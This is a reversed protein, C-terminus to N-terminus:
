EVKQTSISAKLKQKIRSLRTGINSISLGTIEAIEEYSLGELFLLVIGKELKNLRKIHAYMTRLREEFLLDSNDPERNVLLELSHDELRKKKKRGQTIATNMAVRYIWTSRKSTGQFSDFSKWLQYVIEQYLDQQDDSHETYISTVKYILGENERIIRIFEEERPM